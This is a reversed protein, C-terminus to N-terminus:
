MHVQAIQGTGVMVNDGATHCPNYYEDHSTTFMNMWQHLLLM